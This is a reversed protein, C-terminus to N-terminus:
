EVWFIVLILPHDYSQFGFGQVDLPIEAILRVRFPMEVVEQVEFRSHFDM